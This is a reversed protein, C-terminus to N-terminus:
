SLANLINNISNKNPNLEQFLKCYEVSKAKMEAKVDANKAEDFKYYYYIALYEYANQVISKRQEMENNATLIELVKLYLNKAVETKIEPDLLTNVNAKMYYGQYGNEDLRIMEGFAVDANALLEMGLAKVEAISDRSLPQGASLYYRGQTYYDELSADKGQLLIYKGMMEAAEVNMAKASLDSALTKYINSNDPNLEIAQGFSELAKVKDGVALLMNGYSIFDKDLYGSDISSRLKFFKNGVEIGQEYQKLKEDSYMLLRNLVFNNPDLKLGKELIEKADAYNENFYLARAYYSLDELNYNETSFYEKYLAIAQPNRGNLTYVKAMFRMILKNNPDIQLAKRFQELATNPNIREYVLGAKILAVINNKDFYNAQDYEAAAPGTEGKRLLIDGKLIFANPDPTKSKLVEDLMKQGEVDMNNDYFAKAVELVVASDKKNKKAIGELTKKADKSTVESRLALKALGIEGYVSADVAYSKEFYQKAASMNDLDWEIEGLYYNNLAPDQAVNKLFYQKALDLEGLRYLTLGEKNQAHIMVSSLLLLVAVIFFKIKM